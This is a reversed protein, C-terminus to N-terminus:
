PLPPGAAAWRTLAYFLAVLFALEVVLLVYLDRWRSLLPPPADPVESAGVDQSAAPAGGGARVEKM